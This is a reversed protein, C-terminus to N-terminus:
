DTDEPDNIKRNMKEIIRRYIRDTYSADKLFM